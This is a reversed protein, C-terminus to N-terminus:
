RLTGVPAQEAVKLTFYFTAGKGPESEAWIKGGHRDIVRRANPLGIGTGPIDQGHLREFIGFIKEAYQPDFGPGEDRVYYANKTADHGFIVRGGGYKAANEFLEGLVLNLLEKDGKVWLGPQVIFHMKSDPVAQRARQAADEALASLNLPKASIPSRGVRLHELIGEVMAHMRLGNERLRNLGHKHEEPLIPDLDRIMMTCNTSIGRTYQRMDHAMSYTLVEADSARELLSAVTDEHRQVRPTVDSFVKIFGAAENLEGPMTRMTGEALFQGGGKQNLWRSFSAKGTTEAMLQELGPEGNQVDDPGFLDDASRGVMEGRTWGTIQTAGVNWERVRRNSDLTIIATDVLNDFITKYARDRDIQTRPAPAATEVVPRQVIEKRLNKRLSQIAGWETLAAVTFLILRVRLEQETPQEHLAQGLVFSAGMSLFYALVAPGLGGSWGALAVTPVFFWLTYSDPTWPLVAWRVGAAVLVAIAAWLYSLKETRPLSSM